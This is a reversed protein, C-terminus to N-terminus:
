LECEILLSGCPFEFLVVNQRTSENKGDNGSYQRVVFFTCAAGFGPSGVFHVRSVAPARYSDGHNKIGGIQWQPIMTSFAIEKM